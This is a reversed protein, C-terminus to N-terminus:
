KRYAAHTVDRMTDAMEPSACVMIGIFAFLGGIGLIIGKILNKM